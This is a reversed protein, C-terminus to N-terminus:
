ILSIFKVLKEKIDFDVKRNIVRCLKDVNCKLNMAENERYLLSGYNIVSSSKLYSKCFEIIEKLSYSKGIGVNVIEGVGKQYNCIIENNSDKYKSILDKFDSEYYKNISVYINTQESSLSQILTDLFEPNQFAGIMIATKNM